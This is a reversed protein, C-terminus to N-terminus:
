KFFYNVSWQALFISSLGILHSVFIYALFRSMVAWSFVGSLEYIYTSFTSLGGCFGVSLLLFYAPSVTNRFQPLSMVIGLVFCAVANAVLTGMPFWSWLKGFYLGAGYRFLSGLGGGM